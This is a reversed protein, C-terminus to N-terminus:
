RGDWAELLSKVKAPNETEIGLAKCDQIVNDIMRSMTGTDFKSSGYYVHINVCGPLKSPFRETIWGLGNKEWGRCFDDAAREIVCVTDCNGGVEKIANRYLETKPIGTGAALRDLLTWLLANADLSRKKKSKAIEYEGPEFGIAFRVAEPDSTSLVLEGGAWRAGTIKM